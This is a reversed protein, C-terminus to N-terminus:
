NDHLSAGCNPCKSTQAPDLIKSGCYSCKNTQASPTNNLTQPQEKPKSIATKITIVAVILLAIILIIRIINSIINQTKIYSYEPDDELAVSAYDMNISDTFESIHMSEVAINIYDGIHFKQIEIDDYMAFTSAKITPTDELISFYVGYEIYWLQFDMDYKIALIEGQRKYRSDNEAVTIMNQYHTYSSECTKLNDKQTSILASTAFIFIGILFLAVGLFILKSSKQSLNISAGSGGTHLHYGTHIHIGGHHHPRISSHSQHRNLQSRSSTARNSFHSRAGSSRSSSSSRRSSGSSRSFHSRAM